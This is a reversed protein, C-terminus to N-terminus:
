GTNGFLVMIMEDYRQAEPTLFRSTIMIGFMEHCPSTTSSVGILFCGPLFVRVGTTFECVSYRCFPKGSM